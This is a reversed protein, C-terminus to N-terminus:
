MPCLSKKNKKRVLYLQKKIINLQEVMFTPLPKILTLYLIISTALLKVIVSTVQIKLHRM